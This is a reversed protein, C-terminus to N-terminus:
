HHYHYHYQTIFLGNGPLPLAQNLDKTELIMYHLGHTIHNWCQKLYWLVPHMRLHAYEVSQLMAAM